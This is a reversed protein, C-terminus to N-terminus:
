EEIWIPKVVDRIHERRVIGYYRADFSNAVANGILIYEDDKLRGEGEFVPLPQGLGDQWLPRTGSLLRGNIM